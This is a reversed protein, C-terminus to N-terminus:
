RALYKLADVLRNLEDAVTFLMEKKKKAPQGANGGGWVVYYKGQVRFKMSLAQLQVILRTVAQYPVDPKAVLKVVNALAMDLDDDKLSEHIDNFETIASILELVSERELVAVGGAM